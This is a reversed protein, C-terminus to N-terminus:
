DEKPLERALGFDSIILYGDLDMLINELKLDRHILNLEHLYGIGM